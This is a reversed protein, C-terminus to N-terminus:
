FIKRRKILLNKLHKNREKMIVFHKIANPFGLMNLKYIIHRKFQQHVLRVRRITFRSTLIYMDNNLFIEESIDASKKKQLHEHVCDILNFYAYMCVIVM